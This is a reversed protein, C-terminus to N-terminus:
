LVNVAHALRLLHTQSFCRVSCKVRAKTTVGSWGDRQKQISVSGKAHQTQSRHHSQSRVGGPCRHRDRRHDEGAGEGAKARRLGTM